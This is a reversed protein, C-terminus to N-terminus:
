GRKEANSMNIWKRGEWSWRLGLGESTWALRLTRGPGGARETWAADAVQSVPGPSM